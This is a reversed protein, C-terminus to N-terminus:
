IRHPKVSWMMIRNTMAYNSGEMYANLDTHGSPRSVPLLSNPRM